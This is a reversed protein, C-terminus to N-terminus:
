WCESFRFRKTFDIRGNRRQCHDYFTVAQVFSVSITHSAQVDTFTYTTIAGQSVNDVLVDDVLYGPDPTITYTQNRWLEGHHRGSPQYQRNSGATATITYTNLAFHQASATRLRFM